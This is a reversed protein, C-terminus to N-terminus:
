NGYTVLLKNSFKNKIIFFLLAAVFLLIGMKQFGASFAAVQLTKEQAITMRSLLGSLIFSLCFALPIMGMVEGRADERSSEAAIQFVLPGIYLEALSIVGVVGLVLIISPAHFLSLVLMALGSAIFPLIIRNKGRGILPSFLIIIMPNMMGVFSSPLTVGFLQRDCVRDAFLILSTAMQDEVSFFIVLAALSILFMKRKERYIANSSFVKLVFIISLVVGLVIIGPTALRDDIMLIAAVLPMSLFGLIPFLVTQNSTKEQPIKSFALTFFGLAMVGGAVCFAINYGYLDKLVGLLPISVLAGLNQMAYMITLTKKQKIPDDKTLKGIIAPLNSVLLNGGMILLGFSVILHNEWILSTYGLTLLAGGLLLARRFGLLRDALIGGFISGLEFLTVFIASTSFAKGENLSLIDILYLVMLTRVGYHAFFRCMRAFILGKLNTM